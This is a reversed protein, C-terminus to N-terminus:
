YFGVYPEGSYENYLRQAWTLPHEQLTFQGAVSGFVPVPKVFKVGQNKWRLPNNERQIPHQQNVWAHDQFMNSLAVM